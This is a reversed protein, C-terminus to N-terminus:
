IDFRHSFTLLKLAKKERCEAKACYDIFVRVRLFYDFSFLIYFKIYQCVVNLMDFVNPKVHPMHQSVYLLYVTCLLSTCAILYLLKLCRETSVGCM